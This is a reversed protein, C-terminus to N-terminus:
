YTWARAEVWRGERHIRTNDAYVDGVVAEWDMEMIDAVGPEEHGPLREDEEESEPTETLNVYHLNHERMWNEYEVVVPQAPEGDPYQAGVYDIYRYDCVSAMDDDDSDNLEVVNGHCM